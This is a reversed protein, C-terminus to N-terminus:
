ATALAKILNYYIDIGRLFVQENLFEDHDHLLVPTKNMPSFGFAPIGVERIYRCDTGGPFVATKLSVNMKDCENKFINWWPNTKPDISTVEIKPMKQRFSLNAGCESAMQRLKAEFETHDVDVAVRCDFTAVFAPPVVNNQVGGNIITLNLTTVDGITFDPNLQLRRKEKERFDLFKQLALSLKEGATNEHLLSGHGTQGPCEIDFVWISREGYYLMFEDTASAMGEDLACGVNLNKFEQTKIFLGMGDVGGIEEDPVFTLHLTRKLHLGEQIYKRVTEIYQIGVCKMDQAGRAYINGNEDKIAAFPKHTWKEEFVPVVDMHSNLLLSPLEPNTGLWSIVVIPKKPKLEFVKFKLNLGEAQRRLFEICGDYNINPHVSPIRLYERFNSVALPESKMCCSM